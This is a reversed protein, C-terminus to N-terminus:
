APSSDTGASPVHGAGRPTNGADRASAPRARRSPARRGNERSHLPIAPLHRRAAEPAMGRPPLQNFQLEAHAATGGLPLPPCYTEGIPSASAERPMHRAAAAAPPLSM